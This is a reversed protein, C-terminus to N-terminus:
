ISPPPMRACRGALRAQEHVWDGRNTAHCLELEGTRTNLRWVMATAEMSAIQYAPEAAQGHATGPSSLAYTILVAGFVASLVLPFVIMRKMASGEPPQPKMVHSRGHM